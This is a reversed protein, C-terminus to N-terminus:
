NEVAVNRALTKSRESNAQTVTLTVHGTKSTKINAVTGSKGAHSGGIVRCRMGDTLTPVISRAPKKM